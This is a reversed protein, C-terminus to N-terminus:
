INKLFNVFALAFDAGAADAATVSAAVLQM